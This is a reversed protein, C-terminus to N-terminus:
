KFETIYHVTLYYRREGPVVIIDLGIKTFNPQVVSRYHADYAKGKESIFFDYTGRISNILEDTCDSSNCSYTGYGVNETTTAGGVVKGEVGRLRFWDTITNYSYYSDGPSRRHHNQGRGKAFEINWSHATADLRSDYSYPSLGLSSRTANYYSLWTSRVRNMDVGNIATVGPTIVGQTINPKINLTQSTSQKTQVKDKLTIRTSTNTSQTSRITNSRIQKLKETNSLQIEIKRKEKNVGEQKKMQTILNPKLVIQAAFTTNVTYVFLLIILLIKRM